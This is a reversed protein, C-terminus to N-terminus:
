PLRMIGWSCGELVLQGSPLLTSGEGLVSAAGALAPLELSRSDADPNIAIAFRAKEDSRQYVFLREDSSM